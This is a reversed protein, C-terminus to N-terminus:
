AAPYAKCFRVCLRLVAERSEHRDNPSTLGLTQLVKENTIDHLNDRTVRRQEPSLAARHDLADQADSIAKAMAQYHPQQSSPGQGALRLGNQLNRLIAPHRSRKYFWRIAYAGVALALALASTNM